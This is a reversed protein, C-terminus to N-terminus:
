FNKNIGGCPYIVNTPTALERETIVTYRMDSFIALTKKLFIAFVSLNIVM